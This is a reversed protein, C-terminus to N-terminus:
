RPGRIKSSRVAKEFEVRFIRPIARAAYTQVTKKFGFRPRARTSRALTYLARVGSGLKGDRRRKRRKLRQYIRRRGDKADEIFYQDKGKLKKPLMPKRIKRAHSGGIRVVDFPITRFRRGKKPRRVGGVEQDVMFDDKHGIASFANPFDKKRASQIGLGTKIVRHKARITFVQEMRKAVPGKATKATVTLTKAIAFPIQDSRVRLLARSVEPANTKIDVAALRKGVQALPRFRPQRPM